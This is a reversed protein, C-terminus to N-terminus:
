NWAKAPPTHTPARCFPTLIMLRMSPLEKLTITFYHSHINVNIILIFYSFSIYILGSISAKLMSISFRIQREKPPLPPPPPVASGYSSASISSCILIPSSSFPKSFLSAKHHLSNNLKQNLPDISSADARKKKAFFPRHPMFYQPITPFSPNKNNRQLQFFYLLM